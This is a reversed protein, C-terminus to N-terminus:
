FRTVYVISRSKFEDLVALSALDPNADKSAGRQPPDGGFEVLEKGAGRGVRFLRNTVEFRILVNDGSRELLVLMLGLLM